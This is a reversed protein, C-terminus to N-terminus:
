CVYLCLAVTFSGLVHVKTIYQRSLCRSPHYKRGPYKVCVNERIYAQYHTRAFYECLNGIWGLGPYLATDPHRDLMPRLLAKHWSKDGWVSEGTYVLTTCETLIGVSEEKLGAQVTHEILIGGCLYEELMSKPLQNQPIGVCIGVASHAQTTQRTLLNRCLCCELMPKSPTNHWSVCVPIGELIPWTTPKLAGVSSGRLHPGPKISNSSVVLSMRELTPRYAIRCSSVGM